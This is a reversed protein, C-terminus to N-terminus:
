VSKKRQAAAMAMPLILLVPIAYRFYTTYGNILLALFALSFFAGFSILFKRFVLLSFIQTAIQGLFLPFFLPTPSILFFGGSLFLFPWILARMFAGFVGYEKFNNVQDYSNFSFNSNINNAIWNWPTTWGLFHYYMILIALILLTYLSKKDDLYAPIYIIARYSFLLSFFGLYFPAVFPIVLFFLLATDKLIHVALHLRYPNFIFFLLALFSIKNKCLKELYGYLITNTVSYLLINVAIILFVSKNLLGVLVYYSNFIILSPNLVVSKLMSDSISLYTRSDPHYDYGMGILRELSLTILSLLISGLFVYLCYRKEQRFFIPKFM